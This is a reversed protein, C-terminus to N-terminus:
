VLDWAWEPRFIRPNDSLYVIKVADGVHLTEYIRQGVSHRIQQGDPLTYAVYYTTSDSGSSEYLDLIETTTLLGETDLRVANQYRRFFATMLALAVLGVIGGIIGPLYSVRGPEYNAMVRAVKPNSPAYIVEFKGGEELQAFVHYPVSEKRQVQQTGAEPSSTDPSSASSAYASFAYTVYYTEDGDDDESIHKEVVTATTVVGEDELLASERFARVQFFGGVGCSLLLSFAFILNLTRAAKTKSAPTVTSRASAPHEEAARLYAAKVGELGGVAEVDRKVKSVMKLVSLIFILAGIGMFVIVVIFVVPM